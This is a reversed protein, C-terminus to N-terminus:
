LSAAEPNPFASLSSYSEFSKLYFIKKVFSLVTAIFHKDPNWNKLSDEVKLDLNGSSADVLPHFMTSTFRVVPHANYDNYQDPLELVFRFVGDRYVGRRVFIVGHLKRALCLTLSFLYCYIM